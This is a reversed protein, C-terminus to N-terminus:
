NAFKLSNVFIHLTKIHSMRMCLNALNNIFDEFIVIQSFKASYLATNSGHNSFIQVYTMNESRQGKSLM